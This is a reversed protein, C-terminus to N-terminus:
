NSEYHQNYWDKITQLNKRLGELTYQYNKPFVYQLYVGASVNEIVWDNTKILEKYFSKADCLKEEVDSGDHFQRRVSIVNWSVQKIYQEDYDTAFSIEYQWSQDDDIKSNLQGLLQALNQTVSYHHFYQPEISIQEDDVEVTYGIGIVINASEIQKYKKKSDRM